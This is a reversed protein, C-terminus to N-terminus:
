VSQSLRHKITENTSEISHIICENGSLTFNITVLHNTTEFKALATARTNSSKCNNQNLRRMEQALGKDNGDFMKWIIKGSLGEDPTDLSVWEVTGYAYLDPRNDRYQQISFNYPADTM